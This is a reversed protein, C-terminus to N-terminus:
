AVPASLPRAKVVAVTIPTGTGHTGSFDALVSLFRKGGIYGVKSVSAAAHAAVLSLVVGGAAVTADTVDDQAVAIHDAVTSTDGHRLKFEIKNTADFTIGGVGIQFLLAAAEFGALDIATPTNDASLTDPGIALVPGINQSLTRM